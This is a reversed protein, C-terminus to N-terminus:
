PHLARIAAFAELTAFEDEDQDAAPFWLWARTRSDTREADAPVHCTYDDSEVDAGAIWVHVWDGTADYHVVEADAPVLVASDWAAAAASRVEAATRNTM